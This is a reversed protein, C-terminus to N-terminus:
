RPRTPTQRLYGGYLYMGLYELLLPVSGQGTDDGRILFFWHLSMGLVLLTVVTTRYAEHDRSLAHWLPQLLYFCGLVLMFWYDDEMVGLFVRRLAYWWSVQLPRYVGWWTVTTYILLFSLLPFFLRWWAKTLQERRPRESNITLYGSLMFFIIVAPAALAMLVGLPWWVKTELMDPRFLFALWTHLGLVGFMAALRIVDLANSLTPSIPTPGATTTM